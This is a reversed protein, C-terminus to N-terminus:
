CAETVAAPLELDALAENMPLMLMAPLLSFTGAIFLNDRQGMDFRNEGLLEILRGRTIATRALVQATPDRSDSTALLLTLWRALKNYGLLSIAHKLSDIRTSLGMGASNMYRILKVSLAVDRKLANDVDMVDANRLLLRIAQFVAARSPELRKASLTEPRAFYFGQLCDFGLALCATAQERTELKEAVLVRRGSVSKLLKAVVPLKDMTVRLLDVKAHTALAFVPQRLIAPSNVTVSVGYGLRRLETIRSLCAEDFETEASFELVTRKPDLLLIPSSDGITGPAVNVFGYKGGLVQEPGIDQLLSAIVMLSANDGDDFQADTSQANARYLLEYGILQQNRDLIPQRGLFAEPEIIPAPITPDALDAPQSSSQATDPSM